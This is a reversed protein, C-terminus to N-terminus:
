EDDFVSAYSFRPFRESMAAHAALYVTRQEAPLGEPLLASVHPVYPAAPPYPYLAQRGDGTEDRWILGVLIGQAIYGFM